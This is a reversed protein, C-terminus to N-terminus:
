KDLVEFKDFTFGIHHYKLHRSAAEEAARALKDPLDIFALLQDITRIVRAAHRQLFLSRRLKDDEPGDLKELLIGHPFDKWIWEFYQLLEPTQKFMSEYLIFPTWFRNIHHRTNM